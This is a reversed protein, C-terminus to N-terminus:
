ITNAIQEVLLELNARYAALSHDELMTEEILIHKLVQSNGHTVKAGIIGPDQTHNWIYLVKGPVYSADVIDTQNVCADRNKKLEKTTLINCANM